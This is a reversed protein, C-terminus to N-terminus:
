VPAMLGPRNPICFTQGFRKGIKRSSTAFSMESFKLGPNELKAAEGLAVDVNLFYTLNELASNLASNIPVLKFDCFCFWLSTHGKRNTM